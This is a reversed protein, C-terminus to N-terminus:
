SYSKLINQIKSVRKISNSLKQMTEQLLTPDSCLKVFLAIIEQITDNKVNMKSFKKAPETLFTALSIATKIKLSPSTTELNSFIKLICEAMRQTETIDAPPFLEISQEVIEAPLQSNLCYIKLFLSALNSLLKRYKLKDGICDSWWKIIFEEYHKIIELSNNDYNLALIFLFVINQQISKEQTQFLVELNSILQIVTESPITQYQIADIFIEIAFNKYMEDSKQLFMLSNECIPKVYNSPISVFMSIFNCISDLLNFEINIELLQLSGTFFSNILEASKAIIKNKIGQENSINNIYKLFKRLSQFCLDIDEANLNGNSCLEVIQSYLQFFTQEDIIKCIRASIILFTEYHKKKYEGLLKNIILSIVDQEHFIIAISSALLLSNQMINETNKKKQFIKQIHPWVQLLTDKVNEKYSNSLEVLYSLAQVVVENNPITLVYNVAETIKPIIEEVEAYEDQSIIKGLVFLAAGINSPDVNPNLFSLLFYLIEHISYDELDETCLIIYGLVNLYSSVNDPNIQNRINWYNNLLDQSKIKISPIQVLANISTFGSQRVDSDEQTLLPLILPFLPRSCEQVFKEFDFICELTSACAEITLKDGTRLGNQLAEMFFHIDKQVVEQALTVSSKLLLIAIILNGNKLIINKIIEYVKDHPFIEYGPDLVEIFNTPLEGEEQIMRQSFDIVLQAIRLYEEFTFAKIVHKIAELAVLSVKFSIDRDSLFQITANIINPTYKDNRILRGLAKFFKGQFDPDYLKLKPIFACVVELFNSIDNNNMPFMMLFNMVSIGHNILELANQNNDDLSLLAIQQYLQFRQEIFEKPIYQIIEDLIIISIGNFKVSAENIYNDLQPWMSKYCKVYITICEIIEKIILENINPTTLCEIIFNQMKETLDTGIIKVLMKFANKLYISAQFRVYPEQSHIILFMFLELCDYRSFLSTIENTANQILNSDNSRLNLIQQEIQQLLEEDM